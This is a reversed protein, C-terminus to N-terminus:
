RGAARVRPWRRTDILRAAPEAVVRHQEGEEGVDVPCLCVFAEGSRAMDQELLLGLRAAVARTVCFQPADRLTVAM